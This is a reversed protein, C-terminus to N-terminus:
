MQGAGAPFDNLLDIDPLTTQALTFGNTHLTSHSIQLNDSQAQPLGELLACDMGVTIKRLANQTPLPFFRGSSISRHQILRIEVPLRM